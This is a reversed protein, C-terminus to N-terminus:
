KKDLMTQLASIAMTQQAGTDMDRLTVSNNELEKPGVIVVTHAQKAAAYKLSKGIGRQLVDFDVSLGTSRLQQVIQIAQPVMEPNVPVVYVDLRSAPFVFHEAELALITRDFGVAFGATPVATGGLLPILEYFGGGCLQKEAGLVPADIEFVMGTYYDLGRVISLKLSYDKVAFANQLLELITEMVSLEKEAETDGRLFERIDSLDPTQLLQLCTTTEQESVGCDRLAVKLDEFQGKDIFPLLTKQDDHVLRLKKFLSKVLTLNGINLHITQLGANQLLSYALALLEAAAEPTGAGIIECGAQQFERYRGKQPRDYRYCNGFYFVKLPKPEMQLREIYCRIVPATLEPRLALQRGGKDTFAYLENIIADGSKATFLEVHEFSPTQIQQYGFSSFTATMAQELYQRKVMEEPTFDRTGRPVQVM